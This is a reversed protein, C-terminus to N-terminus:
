VLKESDSLYINPDVRLARGVAVNYARLEM